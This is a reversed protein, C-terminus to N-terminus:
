AEQKASMRRPDIKEIEQIIQHHFNFFSLTSPLNPHKQFHTQTPTLANIHTNSYKNYYLQPKELKPTHKPQTSLM